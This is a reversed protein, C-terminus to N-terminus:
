IVNLPLTIATIKAGSGCKQCQSRHPKIVWFLGAFFLEHIIVRIMNHMQYMKLENIQHGSWIAQWRNTACERRGLGGIQRLSAISRRKSRLFQMKKTQVFDSKLVLTNMASTLYSPFSKLLFTAPTMLICSCIQIFYSLHWQATQAGLEPACCHNKGCSDWTM